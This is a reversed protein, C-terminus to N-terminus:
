SVPVRTLVVALGFAVGMVALEGAAWLRFPTARHAAVGPLLRFRIMGGVAALVVLCTAKLLV